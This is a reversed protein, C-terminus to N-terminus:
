RTEQEGRRSRGRARTREWPGGGRRATSPRGATVRVVNTSVGVTADAAVVEWAAAGLRRLVPEARLLEERASGGKLALLLGGPRALPLAWPVLRELPAVARATVVDAFLRGHLDEARARRVRCRVLGLAEVTELLFTVRRQLPEVLVVDLDPRAIAVVVGPLGAGAGVDVVTGTPPLLPLVAACNLLHREWLRPVERPGILGRQVGVTALRAAYRAALAVREAFVAAAAQEIVADEDAAIPAAQGPEAAAAVRPPADAGAAPGVADGASLEVM